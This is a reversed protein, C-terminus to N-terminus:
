DPLQPSLRGRKPPKLHNRAGYTEGLVFREASGFYRAVTAQPAKYDATVEPAACTGGPSVKFASASGTFLHVASDV